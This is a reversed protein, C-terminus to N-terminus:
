DNIEDDIIELIFNGFDTLRALQFHSNNGFVILNSKRLIKANLKLTSLPIDNSISIRNLIRTINENKTNKIQSLILVQNKNLARVLLLRLGERNEEDPM